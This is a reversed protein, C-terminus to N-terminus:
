PLKFVFVFEVPANGIVKFHYNGEPLNFYDNSQLLYTEGSVSIECSGSLIYKTVAKSWGDFEAGAEYRNWRVAYFNEPQHLLRLNELTLRGFKEEDWKKIQM